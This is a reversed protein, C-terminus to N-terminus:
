FEFKIEIKYEIRHFSREPIKKYFSSLYCSLVINGSVIFFRFIM